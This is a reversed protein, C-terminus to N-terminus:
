RCLRTRWCCCCPRAAALAASGCGRWRGSRPCTARPRRTCSCSCTTRPPFIFCSTLFHSLSDALWVCACACVCARGAQGQKSHGRVCCKLSLNLQILNPRSTRPLLLAPVAFHAGKGYRGYKNRYAAVPGAQWERGAGLGNRVGREDTPYGLEVGLLEVMAPYRTDSATKWMWRQEEDTFRGGLEHLYRVADVRGLLLGESLAVALARKRVASDAWPGPPPQLLLPPPAEGGLLYALIHLHGRAAAYWAVHAFTEGNCRVGHSALLQLASLHGGKAPGVLVTPACEGDDVPQEVQAGLNDFLYSIAATDGRAGAKELAFELSSGEVLRWGRQEWLLRVRALGDPASMADSVVDSLLIPLAPESLLIPLAALKAPVAAAAAEDGGSPLQLVVDLKDLWCPTPSGAAAKLVTWMAAPGLPNALRSANYSLKIARPYRSFWMGGQQQQQQQPQPPQQQQQRRLPDGHMSVYEEWLGTFDAVNFGHAAAMLLEGTRLPHDEPCLSLLKAALAVHGASVASCVATACHMNISHWVVPLQESLLWQCVDANGAAAATRLPNHPIRWNGVVLGRAALQQCLGLAVGPGSAEAAAALLWEGSRLGTAALAADVAGLSGTYAAKWVTQQRQEVPWRQMAAAPLSSSYAHVPLTQSARVRKHEPSCLAKATTKNLLRLTLAVENQPAFSAIRELLDAVLWIRHPLKGADDSASHM